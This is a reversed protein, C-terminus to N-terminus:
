IALIKCTAHKSIVSEMSHIIFTSILSCSCAPQDAGKNNAYLLNQKKECQLGVM